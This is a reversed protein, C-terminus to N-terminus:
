GSSGGIGFQMARRRWPAPARRPWSATTATRTDLCASGDAAASRPPLYVKRYLGDLRDQGFPAPFDVRAKDLAEVQVKALMHRRHSSPDICQAFVFGPQTLLQRQELHIVVEHQGVRVQAQGQRPEFRDGLRAGDFTPLRPRRCHRGPERIM